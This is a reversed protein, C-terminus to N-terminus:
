RDMPSGMLSASSSSSSSSFSGLLDCWWWGGEKCNAVEERRGSSAVAVVVVLRGHAARWCRSGYLGHEEEEEGLCLAIECCRDRDGGDTATRRREAECAGVGDGERCSLDEM